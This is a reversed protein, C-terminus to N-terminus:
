DYTVALTQGTGPVVVLGNLLPFDVLYAGVVAPITAILNAASVGAITASDYILGATSGAVNVSVRCVRAQGLSQDKSVVVVQTAASINLASGKGQRIYIGDSM